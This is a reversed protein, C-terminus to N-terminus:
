RHREEFGVWLLKRVALVKKRLSLFQSVASFLRVSCRVIVRITDPPLCSARRVIVSPTDAWTRRRRADRASKWSSPRALPDPGSDKATLGTQQGGSNM